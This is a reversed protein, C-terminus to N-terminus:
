ESRMKDYTLIMKKRFLVCLIFIILNLVSIISPCFGVIIFEKLPVDEFEDPHEDKYNQDRKRGGYEPYDAIHLKISLYISNYLNFVILIIYILILLFSLCMRKQFNQVIDFRM